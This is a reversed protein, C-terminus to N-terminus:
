RTGRLTLGRYGAVFGADLLATGFSSEGVPGGDVKRIVLERQRGASVLTTLGRVAAAAV